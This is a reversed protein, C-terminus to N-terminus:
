SVLAVISSGRFEPWYIRSNLASFIHNGGAGIMLPITFLFIRHWGCMVIQLCRLTRVAEVDFSVSFCLMTRLYFSRFYACINKVCEDVLVAYFSALDGAAGGGVSGTRRASSGHGGGGGGVGPV